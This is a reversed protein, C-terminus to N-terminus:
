KLTIRIVKLMISGKGNLIKVYYVTNLITIINLDEATVDEITAITEVFDVTGLKKKKLFDTIVSGYKAKKV